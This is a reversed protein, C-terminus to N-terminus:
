SPGAEHLRPNAGGTLGGGRSAPATDNLTALASRRVWGTQGDALSVKAWGTREEIIRLETGGPLPRPLRAPAGLSDAARLVTEPVTVVADRADPNSGGGLIGPHLSLFTAVWTAALLAAAVRLGPLRYLLSAAALAAAVLFLAGLVIAREGPSLQRRWALTRNWLTNGPSASGDGAASPRPVWPPLLERAVLLNRMAREPRPARRLALRFALVASGLHEAQLAATGWNAYLDPSRHGAEVLRRFGDEARSFGALRASRDQETQAASYAQLASELTTMAPVEVEGSRSARAPAPALTAYLIAVGLLVSPWQNAFRRIM